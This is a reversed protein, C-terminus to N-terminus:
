PQVIATIEGFNAPPNLQELLRKKCETLTCAPNVWVIETRNFEPVIFAWCAWGSANKGHAFRYASHDFVIRNKM